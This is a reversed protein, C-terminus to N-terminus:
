DKELDMFLTMLFIIRIGEFVKGLGVFIANVIVYSIDGEEGVNGAVLGAIFDIGFNNLIYMVITIGLINLFVRSFNGDVLSKSYQLASVGGKGRLVYSFQWFAFWVSLIIGPIILLIFGIILSVYFLIATVIFMPLMSMGDKMARIPPLKDGHMAAAIVRIVAIWAIGGIIASIMLSVFEKIIGNLLDNTLDSSTDAFDPIFLEFLPVLFEVVLFVPVVITAIAPLNLTFFKFSEVLLSFFGKDEPKFIEPESSGIEMEESDGVEMEESDGVEMELEEFDEDM